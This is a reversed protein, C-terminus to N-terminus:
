NLNYNGLHFMLKFRILELPNLYASFTMTFEPLSVSKSEGDKVPLLTITSVKPIKRVKTIKGDSDLVGITVNGLGFTYTM